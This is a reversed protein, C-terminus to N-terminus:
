PHPHTGDSFHGWRNPAPGALYGMAREDSDPLYVGLQQARGLTKVTMGESLRAAVRERHAVGEAGRPPVTGMYTLVLAEMQQISLDGSVSLELSGPDLQSVISDRSVELGLADIQKHNPCLFRPDGQTLSYALSEVCASELGKVTSDFQEHYSQRAREFADGEYEFDTLIVHAV